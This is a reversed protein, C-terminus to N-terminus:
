RFRCHAATSSEVLPQFLATIHRVYVDLNIPGIAIQCSKWAQVGLRAAYTVLM